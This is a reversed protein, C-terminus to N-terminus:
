HGPMWGNTLTERSGAARVAALFFEEYEHIVGRDSFLRNASAELFERRAVERLTPDKGFRLAVSAYEGISNAIPANSVGMQQYAGAVIRGRMFRGPWTVTPTGFVQSEYMTNGSGFHIPDLLVDFHSMMKMFGDLNQRPVFLVRENLVPFSAAWREQLLATWAPQKGDIVVIHGTPDGEAIKALVPDFDPHFKFLSQPCGYLTGVEPLGLTARDPVQDPVLLPEYCSPLRSFRIM